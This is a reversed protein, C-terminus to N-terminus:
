SALSTRLTYGYNKLPHTPVNALGSTEFVDVTEFATSREVREGDALNTGREALKSSITRLLRVILLMPCM